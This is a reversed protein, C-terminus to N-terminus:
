NSFNTPLHKKESNFIPKKYDKWLMQWSPDDMLAKEFAHIEAADMKGDLYQQIDATTYNKSHDASQSM